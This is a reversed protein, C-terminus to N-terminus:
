QLEKEIREALRAAAARTLRLNIRPHDDTTDIWIGIRDTVPYRIVQPARIPIPKTAEISVEGASRVAPPQIPRRIAIHDEILALHRNRNM